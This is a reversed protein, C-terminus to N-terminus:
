DACANLVVIILLSIPLSHFLLRQFFPPLCRPSTALMWDWKVDSNILTIYVSATQGSVFYTPHNRKGCDVVVASQREANRDSTM